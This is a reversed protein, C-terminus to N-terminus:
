IMQAKYHDLFPQVLQSCVTYHYYWVWIILYIGFAFIGKVLLESAFLDLLQFIQFPFFLFTIVQLKFNFYFHVSSDKSKTYNNLKRNKYYQWAEICSLPIIIVMGIVLLLKISLFQFTYILIAILPVHLYWQKGIWKWFQRHILRNKEKFFNNAISVVRSAGGFSEHYQEVRKIFKTGSKIQMDTGLESVYHDILEGRLDSFNGRSKARELITNFLNDLFLLKERETPQASLNDYQYHLNHDEPRWLGNKDWM